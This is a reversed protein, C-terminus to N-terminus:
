RRMYLTPIALTFGCGLDGFYNIVFMCYIVCSILETPVVRTILLIFYYYYFICYQALCLGRLNPQQFKVQFFNCLLALLIKFCLKNM